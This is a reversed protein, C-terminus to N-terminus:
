RNGGEHEYIFLEEFNVNLVDMVVPNMERLKEEVEGQNGKIVLTYISGEKNKHLIDFQSFESEEIDRNFAVQYKNINSKENLLDGYTTIYGNELIGFEDCIDELEKLNHSSIIIISDNDVIFDSLAAKLEHRVLPDLGDFAEDLLLLKPKIALAFVLMAQRKMGKSFSSIATKEDLGFLNLYKVYAIEDFDYFTKYFQKLSNMNEAFPYYPEDSVFFIDKRVSEDFYVNRDDFTIIGSDARYIGAITRLLTTKGAGNVGVLAFITGPYINLNLNLLVNKDEYSKSINDISLM